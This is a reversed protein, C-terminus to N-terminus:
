NCKTLKESWIKIMKIRKLSFILELFDHCTRLRSEQPPQMKRGTHELTPINDCNNQQQMIFLAFIFHLTFSFFTICVDEM